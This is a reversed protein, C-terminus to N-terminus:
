ALMTTELAEYTDLTFCTYINHKKMSLNPFLSFVKCCVMQTDFFM